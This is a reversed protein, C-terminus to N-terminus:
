CVRWCGPQPEAAEAGVASQHLHHLLEVEVMDVTEALVGEGVVAGLDTALGQLFSMPDANVGVHSARSTLIASPDVEVQVVAGAEEAFLQGLLQRSSGELELSVGLRSAFMMEAVTAFLGGDSRAHYALLMGRENLEQIAAFFNKLADADDLDATQGGARNYAQALCSGGLRNQGRGLDFLLLYTPEGAARLEMNKRAINRNAEEVEQKTVQEDELFPTDGPSIILVKRLMRSVIIEIHKDNIRVGQLRYVEQVEDVLYKALAKVGLVKIIDHPNEAGDMLREFIRSTQDEILYLNLEKYSRRLKPLVPPLLFPAITPIVGLRLDGTLPQRNEAALDALQEMAAPRNTDLSAMLVRKKEREHLRKALKATTTTKGSGQLGVMLVPVPPAAKLNLPAPDKGLMEVLADNVIKVVMQGPTVSKIVEQGVAKQKVDEVFNRVVELAVDAEILARRVECMATDVDAESLAGRGTLKDFIGSLRDQLTEFM